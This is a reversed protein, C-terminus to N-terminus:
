IPHPCSNEVMRVWITTRIVDARESEDSSSMITSIELEICHLTLYMPFYGFINKQGFIDATRALHLKSFFSGSYVKTIDMRDM